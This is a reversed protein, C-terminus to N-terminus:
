REFHRHGTMTITLLKVFSILGSPAALALPACSRMRGIISRTGECLGAKRGRLSELGAVM